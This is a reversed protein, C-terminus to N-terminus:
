NQLEESDVKRNHVLGECCNISPPWILQKHLSVKFFAETFKDLRMEVARLSELTVKALPQGVAAQSGNSSDEATNSHFFVQNSFVASICPLQSLLMVVFLHRLDACFKPDPNKRPELTKEMIAQMVEEPKSLPFLAKDQEGL